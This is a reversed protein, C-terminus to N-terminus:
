TDRMRLVFILQKKLYLRSYKWIVRIKNKKENKRRM